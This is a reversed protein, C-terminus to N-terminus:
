RQEFDIIIEEALINQLYNEKIEVKRVESIAGLLSEINGTFFDDVAKNKDLEAFISTYANERQDFDIVTLATIPTEFNAAKAANQRSLISRLFGADNALILIRGRMAYCVEIGPMPLRLERRSLDNETKSEWNLETDPASIMTQDSLKRAIEAEFAGRNFDAPSALHFIAARDFEAFMPAPLVQPLSLTLVAKPKATQLIKSFDAESKRSEVATRDDDVDTVSQDFNGSLNGYDDGSYDDYNDFSSFYSHRNTEPKEETKRRDFITAKVAEDVTESNASQLRYFPIKEPLFSLLEAARWNEVPLIDATEDLLFRRHEILKGQRMEFDFIGARLNKLNGGDSMLWYRKFYYDDNLATQNVWVAAIHPEIKESLAAFAPEDSLRNKTRGDKINNLTQFLLKEGTALIFRGDAHAFILEQKQRGRDAEVAVRYVTTGDELTEEEFKDSNRVFKAAAFVEENMPAIFVFELKGIDYLAISARSETLSSVTELDIPFGSADSFETLRSALKRALHRNKFDKFNESELYKEKFKSENWLKIFAPLDNFQAYILADRPFDAAPAFARRSMQSFAIFVAASVVLIAIFVKM